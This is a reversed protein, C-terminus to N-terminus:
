LTLYTHGFHLFIRQYGVMLKENNVNLLLINERPFRLINWDERLPQMLHFSIWILSSLNKQIINIDILWLFIDRWADKPILKKLAEWWLPNRKHAQNERHRYSQKNKFLRFKNVHNVMLNVSVFKNQREIQETYNMYQSSINRDINKDLLRSLFKM